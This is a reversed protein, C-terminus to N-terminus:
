RPTKSRARDKSPAQSAKRESIRELRELRRAHEQIERERREETDDVWDETDLDHKDKAM